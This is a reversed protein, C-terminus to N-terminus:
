VRWMLFFGELKGKKPSSFAKEKVKGWGMNLTERQKGSEKRIV